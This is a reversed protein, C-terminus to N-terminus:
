KDSHEAAFIDKSFIIVDHNERTLLYRDLSINYKSMLYVRFDDASWIKLKQCQSRWLSPNRVHFGQFGYKLSELEYDDGFCNRLAKNYTKKCMILATGEPLLVDVVQKMAIGPVMPRSLATVNMEASEDTTFIIGRVDRLYRDALTDRKVKESTKQFIFQPNGYICARIIKSLSIFMAHYMWAGTELEQEFMRLIKASPVRILPGRNPRFDLFFGNPNFEDQTLKTKSHSNLMTSTILDKELDFLKSKRITAITYHPKDVDGEFDGASCLVKQFEILAEKMEGNVYNDWLFHFLEPNENHYLNRGTEHSLSQPRYSKFIDGLETYRYYIVGVQVESHVEGFEDYYTYSPLANSAANVEDEDNTNLLGSWHDPTFAKLDVALAARALQIGNHKAKFSNMGFAFDPTLETGDAMVIRGLYPKGKTVGKFGTNSDCRANGAKRAVRLTVKSKGLPGSTIQEKIFKVAKVNKLAIPRDVEGEEAYGIVISKEETIFDNEDKHTTVHVITGDKPIAFKDFNDIVTRDEWVYTDYFSENAEVEGFLYQQTETDMPRIVVVARRYCRDKPEYGELVPNDLDPYKESNYVWDQAFVSTPLFDFVEYANATVHTKNRATINQASKFLSKMMYIGLDENFFVSHGVSRYLSGKSYPYLILKGVKSAGSESSCQINLQDKLKYWGEASPIYSKFHIMDGLTKNKFSGQEEDYVGMIIYSNQNKQVSNYAVSPVYQVFSKVASIDRRLLSSYARNVGALQILRHQLVVYLLENQNLIYRDESDETFYDIVKNQFISRELLFKPYEVHNKLPNYLVSPIIIVNDKYEDHLLTLHVEDSKIQVKLIEEFGEPILMAVEAATTLNAPIRPVNIFSGNSGILEQM